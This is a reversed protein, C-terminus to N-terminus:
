NGRAQLRPDRRTSLGAGTYVFAQSALDADGITKILSPRGLASGGGALPV